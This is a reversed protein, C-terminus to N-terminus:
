RRSAGGAARIQRIARRTGPEPQSLTILERGEGTRGSITSPDFREGGPTWQWTDDIGGGTVRVVARGGAPRVSVTLPGKAWLDYVSVVLTSTTRSTLRLQRWGLPEGRSDAPSDVIRATAPATTVVHFPCAAEGSTLIYRGEGDDSADLDKGQMLWTIEVPEGARIDDLVLIYRGDIWFFSRRFRELAPRENGGRPNVPYFGSAEGEIAVNKGNEAFATVVATETMDGGPQSWGGGEARGPVTQGTGNILITNHNASQKHKSYGDTETLFAGENFLLFANADPDDHAVNIYQGGRAARYRNLTYGGFPGCKFMAAAQGSEWGSRAILIGLDDFFHTNPLNAVRGPELDRPYWLLALWARTPGVGHRDLQENLVALHDSLKHVAIPRFLAVDYGLNGVNSGGQDGFRFRKDLGPAFSATMFRPLTKMFPIQLYETGLCRDSAELALTLHAMGFIAYSFSEHSTGDEPLWRTVFDLEERVKALLWDDDDRDPEAAALACLVLGANRHWRHNNQPDGRWYGGGGTTGLHGNHMMRRAQLLLKDRFANRFETDLDNYLWDYTLAAGIMINAASMGYDTEGGLEWHELELLLKMYGVSRDFSQQDGTLVYHLAVTPMRWFGQRQGDTANRLFEPESPPRSSPLYDTLESWFQQGRKTKAFAKLAPVEDQSFLLRPHQGRVAEILRVPRAPAPDRDPIAPQAVTLSICAAICVPIVFSPAFRM